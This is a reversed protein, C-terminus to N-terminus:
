WNEQSLSALLGGLAPLLLFGISFGALLCWAGLALVAALRVGTRPAAVPALMIAAPAIVLPWLVQSSDGDSGLILWTAAMVGASALLFVGVDRRRPAFWGQDATV